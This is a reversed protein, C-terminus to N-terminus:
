QLNTNTQYMICLCIFLIQPLQVASNRFVSPSIMLWILPVLWARASILSSRFCCTVMSVSRQQSEVRATKKINLVPLCAADSYIQWVARKWIWSITKRFFVTISHSAHPSHEHHRDVLNVEQWTCRSHRLMLFRNKSYQQRLADWSFSWMFFVPNSGNLFFFFM